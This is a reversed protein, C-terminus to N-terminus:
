LLPLLLAVSLLFCGAGSGEPYVEHELLGLNCIRATVGLPQEGLPCWCVPKLCFAEPFLQGGTPFSCVTRLSLSSQLTLQQNLCVFLRQKTVSFDNLLAGLNAAIGPTDVESLYM